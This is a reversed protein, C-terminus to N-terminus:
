KNLKSMFKRLKSTCGIEERLNRMAVPSYGPIQQSPAFELCPRLSPWITLPVLMPQWKKKIILRVHCCSVQCWMGSVWDIVYCDYYEILLYVVLSLLTIKQNIWIRVIYQAHKDFGWDIRIMYRDMTRKRKRAQLLSICEASFECVEIEEIQTIIRKDLVLEFM